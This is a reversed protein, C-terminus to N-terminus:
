RLVLVQLSVRAGYPTEQQGVETFGLREHFALSSDNRPRLNVELALTRARTRARVAEYLARGLGRGRFRAEVAVRDLYVYDHYRAEFWRYNVSTYEVGPPLVFCFAALSGDQADAALAICSCELLRALKPADAAGVAPENARNLDRVRELDEAVLDRILFPERM